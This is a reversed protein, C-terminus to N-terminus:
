FTIITIVKQQKKSLLDSGHSFSFYAFAFGGIAWIADSVLNVLIDKLIEM